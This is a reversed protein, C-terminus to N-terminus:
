GSAHIGPSIRDLWLDIADAANAARGVKFSGTSRYQDFAAEGGSRWEREGHGTAVLTGGSLGAQAGAGLDALTDGIIHSCSLDVGLSNAAEQLMGCGPKRWHHSAQDFPPIGEAHYACALVMDYHAGRKACEEFIFTQVEVFQAWDYYGRGIGAQNTVMVVPIGLRNVQAIADAVGAIMTVDETRHLYNTEEVLVGDRDLFLCPKGEAEINTLRQAFLGPEPYRPKAIIM